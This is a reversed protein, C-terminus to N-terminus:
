CDPCVSLPCMYPLTDDCALRTSDMEVKSCFLPSQNIDGVTKGIKFGLVVEKPSEM